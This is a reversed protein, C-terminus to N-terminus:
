GLNGVPRVPPVNGETAARVPAGELGRESTGGAEGAQCLRELAQLRAEQPYDLRRRCRLMETVWM